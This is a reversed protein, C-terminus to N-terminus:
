SKTPRASRRARLRGPVRAPVVLGLAARVGGLRAAGPYGTRLAALTEHVATPHHAFDDLVTVGGAVGVTELRRKIGKFTRLGEALTAAGLGVDAASRLRRWRTGCTTCASCRRSSRASRSAARAAGDFRTCRRRSARRRAGALRRRRGPRVDRGPQGAAAALAAAHPSDAGLLLLGNRPVLNSWGGSRWGCRTSTPTSTRTISSSTTSRRRHGAPVEPVERDQRLLRQRVRRGRHRLRPRRGPPLEVRRRRLEARHRRRARTPDLRGHTLLWGTLSTTTTKGHTGAIVISRAGWLFHDRIAEPLSCYRIKRELVAELEPNGRSIANGVVVLDLDGTIHEASYGDLTRIGRGGPLREDASLRESRLRARRTRAAEAARGAHGDGHRLHRHSSHAASM